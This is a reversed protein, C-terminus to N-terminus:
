KEFLRNTCEFSLFLNENVCAKIGIELQLLLRIPDQEPFVEFSHLRVLGALFDNAAMCGLRLTQGSINPM